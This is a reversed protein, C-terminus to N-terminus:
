RKPQYASLSAYRRQSKSRDFRHNSLLGNVGGNQMHGSSSLRYQPWAGSFRSATVSSIHWRWQQMTSPVQLPGLANMNLEDGLPHVYGLCHGNPASTRFIRQPTELADNTRDLSRTSRSQV